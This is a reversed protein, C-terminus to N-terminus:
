FSSLSRMYINFISVSMINTLIITTPVSVESFVTNIAKYSLSSLM